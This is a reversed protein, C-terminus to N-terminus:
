VVLPSESDQAAHQYNYYAEQYDIDEFIGYYYYDGSRLYCYGENDLKCYGYLKSSIYTGINKTKYPKPETLELLLDYAYQFSVTDDNSRAIQIYTEFLFLFPDDIQKMQINHEKAFIYFDDKKM